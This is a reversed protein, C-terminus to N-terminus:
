ATPLKGQRRRQRAVSRVLQDMGIPQQEYAALFAASLSVNRIEGGSLPFMRALFGIDIDAAVPADAPIASRWLRERADEDPLPFEIELHIRRSFAEDMNAPM